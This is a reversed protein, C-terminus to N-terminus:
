TTVRVVNPDQRLGLSIIDGYDNVARIEVRVNEDGAFGPDVWARGVGMVDNARVWTSHEGRSNTVRMYVLKGPMPKFYVTVQDIFADPWADQIMPTVYEEVKPGLLVAGIVGLITKFFGRREM